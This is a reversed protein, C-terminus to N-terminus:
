LFPPVGTANAPFVGIVCVIICRLHAWKKRRCGSQLRREPKESNLGSFKASNVLEGEGVYAEKMEGVKLNQKENQIVVRLPLDYKHAFVFDREDHAPVCMVAGTGYDMVVYNGIWIPIKEGNVPNIVYRGTFKGIKETDQATREILDSNIVKHVFQKM